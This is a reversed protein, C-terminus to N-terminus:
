DSRLDRHGGTADAPHDSVGVGGSTVHRAPRRPRDRLNAPLIDPDAVARGIVELIEDGILESRVLLADRLAEVVHRHEDLMRTVSSKSDDLFAEVEARSPEDSLVKGVIGGGQHEIAAVSILSTGM